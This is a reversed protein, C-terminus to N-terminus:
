LPGSTRGHRIRRGHCMGHGAEGVPSDHGWARVHKPIKRDLRQPQGVIHQCLQPQHTKLPDSREGGGSPRRQYAPEAFDQGQSQILDGSPYEFRDDWDDWGGADLSAEGKDFWQNRGLREGGDDGAQCLCDTAIQLTGAQTGAAQIQQEFPDIGRDLDQPDPRRARDAIRPMQAAHQIFPQLPDIGAQTHFCHM